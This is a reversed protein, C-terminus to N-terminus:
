KWCGRTINASCFICLSILSNRTFSPLDVSEDIQPPPSIIPVTRPSLLMPTRGTQSYSDSLKFFFEEDDVNKLDDVTRFYIADFDCVKTIRGRGSSFLLRELLLSSRWVHSELYCFMTLSTLIHKNPMSKGRWLCWREIM